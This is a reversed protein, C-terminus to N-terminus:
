EEKHSFLIGNYTLVVNEITKFLKLTSIKFKLSSIYSFFMNIIFTHKYFSTYQQYYTIFKYKDSYMHYINIIFM